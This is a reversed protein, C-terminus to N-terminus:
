LLFLIVVLGPCEVHCCQACPPPPKQAFNLRTTLLAGSFELSRSRVTNIYCYRQNADERQENM